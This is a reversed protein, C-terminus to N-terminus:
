QSSVESASGPEWAPALFCLWDIYLDVPDGGDGSIVIKYLKSTEFQAAQKGLLKNFPIVLTQRKASIAGEPLGDHIVDVRDTTIPESLGPADRLQVYLEKPPSGKDARIGFSLSEYGTIDGDWPSIGLTM